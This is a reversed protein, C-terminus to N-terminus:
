SAGEVTAIALYPRVGSPRSDDEAQWWPCREQQALATLLQCSFSTPLTRLPVIEVGLAFLRAGAPKADM